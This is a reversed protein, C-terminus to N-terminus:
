FFCGHAEMSLLQSPVCMVNYWSVNQFNKRCMKKEKQIGPYRSTSVWSHIQRGGPWVLWPLLGFLNATGCRLTPPPRQRPRAGMHPATTHLAHAFLAKSTVGITPLPHPEVGVEPSQRIFFGCPPPLPFQGWGDRGWWIQPPKVWGVLIM